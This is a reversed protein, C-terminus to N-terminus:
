WIPQELTCTMAEYTSIRSRQRSIELHRSQRDFESVSKSTNVILIFIYIYLYLCLSSPYDIILLLCNTHSKHFFCQYSQEEDGCVQAKASFHSM